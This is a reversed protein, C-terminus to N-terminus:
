TKAKETAMNHATIYNQALNKWDAELALKKANMRQDMLERKSLNVIEYLKNTLDETMEEWKRNERKMVYIGQGKGEIFKGFGAMDTTIALTGLAATELPTYGWPEYYSPFVGVDFTIAAQNYDLAILRDAASLYAPYFVVKVKDEERNLLNNKKLAKIISDDDEPYGLEFATLPPTQGRKETFHVILKKFM